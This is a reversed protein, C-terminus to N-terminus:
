FWGSGKLARLAAYGLLVVAIGLALWLLNPHRQTFPRPDAYNSTFGEPGLVAKLTPVTIQAEVSVLRDDHSSSM